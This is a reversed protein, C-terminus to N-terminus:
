SQTYRYITKGMKPWYYLTTIRELTKHASKPDDHCVKLIHQIQSRPVLFKWEPINSPLSTKSSLDKFISPKEVRWQPYKQSNAIIRECFRAYDQDIDDITVDLYTSTLSCIEPSTPSARSLADPVINSKGKWHVLDFSRQNLKVSWRALKGALDKIQKAM